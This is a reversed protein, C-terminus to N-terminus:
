KSKKIKVLKRETKEQKIEVKLYNFLLNKYDFLLEKLIKIEEELVNSSNRTNRIDIDLKGVSYQIAKIENKYKKRM